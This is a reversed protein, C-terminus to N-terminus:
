RLSTLNTQHRDELSVEDMLVPEAAAVPATALPTTAPAPRPAVPLVSVKSQTQGQALYDRLTERLKLAIDRAEVDPMNDAASLVARAYEVNQQFWVLDIVRGARKMNIFLRSQLAFSANNQQPSMVTSM